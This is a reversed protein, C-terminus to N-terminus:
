SNTESFFLGTYSPIEDPKQLQMQHYQEQISKVRASLFVAEDQAFGHADM